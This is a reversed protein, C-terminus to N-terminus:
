KINQTMMFKLSSIPKEQDNVPKILLNQLSLCTYMYVHGLARLYIELQCLNCKHITVWNQWKDLHSCDWSWGVLSWIGYSVCLFNIKTLKLWWTWDQSTHIYLKPFTIKYRATKWSLKCDWQRSKTVAFYSEVAGLEPPLYNAM